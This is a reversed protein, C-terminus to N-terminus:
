YQPQRAVDQLAAASEQMLIQYGLRQHARFLARLEQPITCTVLFYGVPLLREAQKERWAEAQPHGCRGCARHGCRHYAYHPEGCADCLYLSGGCAPTHCRLIAALAERHAPPMRAGYKRLYAPGHRRVVEALDM